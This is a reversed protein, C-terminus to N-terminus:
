PTALGLDALTLARLREMDVWAQKEALRGTLWGQVVSPRERARWAKVWEAQAPAWAAPDAELREVLRAVVYAQRVPIVQSVAGPALEFAAEFLKPALGITPVLQAGAAHFPETTRRRLRETKVLAALKAGDPARRLLARVRLAVKRAHPLQDAERLLTATIERRVRPDDSGRSMAPVRGDTVYFAWGDREELVPTVGGKAAVEFAAPLQKRSMGGLRGGRRANPGESAARAVEGVAEGGAVRGRLGDIKARTVGRDPGFAVFVRSVITREPRVFRNRHAAYWADIEASRAKTAADIEKSSPVRPVGVLDLRVRTQEKRWRARLTEVDVDDLLAETLVRGSVLDEAVRRVQATPVGFREFIRADADAVPPGPLPRPAKGLAAARMLGDVEAAPLELGRRAVELRVLRTEMAKTLLRRRLMISELAEAPPQAGGRWAQLVRAEQVAVRLADVDMVVPGARGIGRAAADAGTPGVDRPVLRGTSPPAEPATCAALLLLCKLQFPRRAHAIM